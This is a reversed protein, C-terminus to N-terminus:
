QGGGTSSTLQTSASSAPAAPLPAFSIQATFSARGDSCQASSGAGAATSKQSSQLSVTTVGDILHLRQLTLAVASQSTACGTLAFTPVSGPPTSSGGAAASTSTSSSAGGGITGDLSTITADHPLVRGLEHLSQAWDFRSDVLSTVAKVRQERLTLFSTYSSLGSATEHAQQTRAQVSALQTRRSSVDHRAVGYLLALIALGALVGLVAYAAGESRGAGVGIGGARDESPILNVARM